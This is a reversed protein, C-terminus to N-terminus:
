ETAIEQMENMENIIQQFDLEIFLEANNKVKYIKWFLASIFIVSITTTQLFSESEAINLNLVDTMYLKRLKPFNTILALGENTLSFCYNLSIKELNVLNSISAFLVDSIYDNTFFSLERMNISNITLLEQVNPCYRINLSTLNTFHSFAVHTIEFCFILCLDQITNPINRIGDDTLNDYGWITLKTLKPLMHLNLLLENISEDTRYLNLEQLNSLRCTDNFIDVWNFNTDSDYVFNRISVNNYYHKNILKIKDPIFNFLLDIM